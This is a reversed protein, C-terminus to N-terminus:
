RASTSSPYLVFSALPADTAVLRGVADGDRWGVVLGTTVDWATHFGRGTAVHRGDDRGEYEHPGSEIGCGDLWWTQVDDGVPPPARPDLPPWHPPAGARYRTEERAGHGVLACVGRWDGNAYTWNAWARMDGDQVEYRAFSGEVPWARAAPTPTVPRPAPAPTAPTAPTPTPPGVPTAPPPETAEMEGRGERADERSREILDVGADVCGALLVVGVLVLVM